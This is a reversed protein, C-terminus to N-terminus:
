PSDELSRSADKFRRIRRILIAVLAVLALYLVAEYVPEQWGLIVPWLSLICAIIFIDEIHRARKGGDRQGDDPDTPAPQGPEPM